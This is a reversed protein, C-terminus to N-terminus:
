RLSTLMTAGSCITSAHARVHPDVGRAASFACTQCCDQMAACLACACAPYSRYTSQCLAVGGEMGGGGGAGNSTPEPHGGGEPQKDINPLTRTRAGDAVPASPPAATGGGGDDDLAAPARTLLASAIIGNKGRRRQARTPQVQRGHADKTASELGVWVYDDPLKGCAGKQLKTHKGGGAWIWMLSSNSPWLNGARGHDEKAARNRESGWRWRGIIQISLRARRVQEM